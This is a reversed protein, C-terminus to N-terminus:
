IIEALATGGKCGPEWAEIIAPIKKELEEVSNPRGNVIVLIVPTGSEAISAVLQSQLGYLNIEARDAEEGCIRNEWDWRLSFEGVVVIALEAKSAREKADTIMTETLKQLINGVDFHDFSCDPDIQKLGELITVINDDPQKDYWDGNIAQSNASHGTIMINKYKGKTLPLINKENKLLVISKRAAELATKQHAKNFVISDRVKLDYEPEDFLGLRFKAELIRRVSEDIRMESIRKEKVLEVVPEFFGPGHMHMDMGADIAQFSAEKMNEAVHQKSVLYEIDLWDSVYFGKFGNETRVLDTLLGKNAHCPVGNLENHAGMMTAVGAGIAAKYPPLFVERLSREDIFSPAGNTGNVSQGGGIFHKACAIMNMSNGNAQEQLGKIMNLGMQTVLFPDEGYTEGVRGWRPETVVDINPAFNWSCGNARMEMSTEKAIRYILATDWSSALSIPTTYFTTGVGQGDGHVGGRANLIPIKLRSKQILSNLYNTEEATLVKTCSGILGQENLAEIDSSHVGPYLTNSTRKRVQEITLNKETTRIHGPGIYQCIQGIKEELTMRKLLDNVRKEVPYKKNLYVPNEANLINLSFIGCLILLSISKIM